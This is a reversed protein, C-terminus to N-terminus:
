TKPHNNFRQLEIPDTRIKKQKVKRNNMALRTRYLSSTLNSYGKLEKRQRIPSPSGTTWTQNERQGVVVIETVAM